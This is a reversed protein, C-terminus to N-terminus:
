FPSRSSREHVRIWKEGKGKGERLPATLLMTVWLPLLFFPPPAAASSRMPARARGLSLAGGDLPRAITGM